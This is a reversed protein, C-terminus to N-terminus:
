DSASSKAKSETKAEAKAETKTEAKPEPKVERTPPGAPPSSNQNSQSTQGSQGRGYDTVYWGSGKLHFSNLSILKKLRGGCSCKTVPADSFKQFVEVVKGCSECQYEYIPM